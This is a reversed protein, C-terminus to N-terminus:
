PDVIVNAAGDATNKALVNESLLILKEANQPINIKVLKSM